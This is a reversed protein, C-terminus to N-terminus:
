SFLQVMDMSSRQGVDKYHKNLWKATARKGYKFLDDLFVDNANLRSHTDRSNHHSDEILHLNLRNLRRELEGSRLWNLKIKQKSMMIARMERLFTNTFSLEHARKRIEEATKPLSDRVLPQLLVLLVDPHSSEFVLPYLPPNGSYGGDWYPENDIEIAQHLTPICASALLVDATLEANSFLRMKGTRVQTAGIHLRISHDARLREFDVISNLVDRLPNLNFPNLQYPSFERTLTMYTDLQGSHDFGVAKQWLSAIDSAFMKSYQDAVEKWFVALNAQAAARGGNLYGSVMVCANMAGSSVSSIGEIRLREDELLRHLVGWTFAGHSGDGQLALNLYKFNEPAMRCEVVRCYQM